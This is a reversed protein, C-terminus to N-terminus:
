INNMSKLIQIIKKNHKKLNASRINQDMSATRAFSSYETLFINDMTFEGLDISNYM